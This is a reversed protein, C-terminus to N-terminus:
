QISLEGPCPPRTSHLLRQPEGRQDFVVLRDIEHRLLALSVVYALRAELEALRAQNLQEEAVILDIVTVDNNRLRARDAELIGSFAELARRRWQVQAASRQVAAAQEVVGRQIARHSEMWQVEASSANAVSQRYRGTARQNFRPFEGSLSLFVSPGTWRSHLSRAFGDLVPPGEALTSAAVTLSLDLRPRREQEAAAMLTNASERLSSLAAHDARGALAVEVLAHTEDLCAPEDADFTPLSATSLPAEHLASIPLGMLLALRLRLERIRTQVPVVSAHADLVSARAQVLEQAPLEGAEVLYESVELLRQQNRLFRQRLALREQEAALQWYVVSLDLALRSADFRYRHLRAQRNFMASREPAENTLAGSGRKLPVNWTFGVASRFRLPVGKGGLGPDRDKNRFNNNTGEMLFQPTLSQGNRFAIPYNIDLVLSDEVEVPPVGGLRFLTARAQEAQSRLSDIIGRINRRNDAIRDIRFQELRERREPDLEQEILLDIIELFENRQRRGAESDCIDVGDIIIQNGEGCDVDVAGDGEALQRELDDAITRFEEDLIIFLDRNGEQQRRVPPLLEGQQHSLTLSVNLSSDFVGGAEQVLGDALRLQERAIELDPAHRFAYHIVDDLSMAQGPPQSSAAHSAGVLVGPLALCLLLLLPRHRQWPLSSLQGVGAIM